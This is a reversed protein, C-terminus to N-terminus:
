SPYPGSRAAYPGALIQERASDILDFRDDRDAGSLDLMPLDLENASIAVM